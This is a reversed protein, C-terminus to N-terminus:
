QVGACTFANRRIACRDTFQAVTSSCRRPRSIVSRFASFKSRLSVPKSGISISRNKSLLKSSCCASVAGWAGCIATARVAVLADGDDLIAPDPVDDVGVDGPARLVVAKM